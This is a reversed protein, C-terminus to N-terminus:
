VLVMKRGTSSKGAGKLGGCGAILMHKDVWGEDKSSWNEPYADLANYDEMDTSVKLVADKAM